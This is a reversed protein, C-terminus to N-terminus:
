TLLKELEQELLRKDPLFLPYKGAFLQNNINDMAYEVMIKDKYAGL